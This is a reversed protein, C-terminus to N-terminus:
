GAGPFCGAAPRARAKKGPHHGQQTNEIWGCGGKGIRFGLELCKELGVPAYLTVQFPRIQVIEIKAPVIQITLLGGQFSRIQVIGLHAHSKAVGAEGFDARYVRIQTVALKELGIEAVSVHVPGVHGARLKLSDPKLIGSMVPAFRVPASTVPGLM